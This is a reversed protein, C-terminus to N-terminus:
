SQSWKEVIKEIQIKIQNIRESLHGISTEFGTLLSTFESIQQQDKLKELIQYANTRMQNMHDNLSAIEEILDELSQNRHRITVPKNTLLNRFYESLSRCTSKKYEQEMNTYKELPLGIYVYFYKGSKKTETKM